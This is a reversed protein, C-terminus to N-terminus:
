HSQPRLIVPMQIIGIRNTAFVIDNQFSLCIVKVARVILKVATREGVAIPCSLNGLCKCVLNSCAGELPCSLSGGMDECGSVSNEFIMRQGTVFDDSSVASGAKIVDSLWCIRSFFSTLRTPCVM